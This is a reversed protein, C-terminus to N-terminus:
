RVFVIILYMGTVTLIEAGTKILFLKFPADEWACRSFNSKLIHAFAIAGVFLCLTPPVLGSHYIVYALSLALIISGIAELLFSRKMTAEIESKTKHHGTYKRWTPGFAWESYWCCGLAFNWVICLALALYFM